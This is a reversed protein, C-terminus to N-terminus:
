RGLIVGNHRASERAESLRGMWIGAAFGVIAAVLAFRLDVISAAVLLVWVLTLAYATRKTISESFQPPTMARLTAGFGAKASPREPAARALPGM